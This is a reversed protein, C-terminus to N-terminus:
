FIPVHLIWMSKFTWGWDGRISKNILALNINIYFTWRLRELQWSFQYVYLIWMSTFTWEWDGIFKCAYSEYQYLFTWRRWDRWSDLFIPVYLIWMPTVNVELRWYIQHLIHLIQITFRVNLNELQRWRFMDNTRINM